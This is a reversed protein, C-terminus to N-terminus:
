GDVLFDTGDVLSDAGDVLFSHACNILYLVGDILFDAGDVLGCDTPPPGAGGSVAVKAFTTYNLHLRLGRM